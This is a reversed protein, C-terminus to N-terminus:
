VHPTAEGKGLTTALMGPGQMSGEPGCVCARHRERVPTVGFPLCDASPMYPSAWSRSRCLGAASPIPILDAM